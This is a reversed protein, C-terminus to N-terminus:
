SLASPTLSGTGLKYLVIVFELGAGGFVGALAWTLAWGIYRHNRSLVKGNEEIGEAYFAAQQALSAILTQQAELDAIWHKPNGGSYDFPTPRAAAIACTLAILLCGVVAGIPAVYPFVPVKGVILSVSSVILFSTIAALIGALTMARSDGALGAKLQEALFSEAERVIEKITFEDATSLVAAIRERESKEM